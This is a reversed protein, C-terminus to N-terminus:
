LLAHFKNFTLILRSSLFNFHNQHHIITLKSLFSECWSRTNRLSLKFLNDTLESLVNSLMHIHITICQLGYTLRTQVTLVDIIKRFIECMEHISYILCVPSTYLLRSTERFFIALTRFKGSASFKSQLSINSWSFRCTQSVKRSSFTLYKVSTLYKFLWHDM